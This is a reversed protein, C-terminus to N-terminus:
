LSEDGVALVGVGSTVPDGIAMGLADVVGVAEGVTEAAVDCVGVADGDALAVDDGDGENVGDGLALGLSDGVQVGVAEGVAEAVADSVGLADGVAVSFTSRKGANCAAGSGTAPPRITSASFRSTRSRPTLTFASASYQCPPSNAVTKGNVSASASSMAPM